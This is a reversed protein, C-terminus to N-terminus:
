ASAAKSSAEPAHKPALPRGGHIRLVAPLLVDPMVPKNLVLDAAAALGSANVQTADHGTLGIVPLTAFDPMARIMRATAAGDLGPMELDLLVLDIDGDRLRELGDVGSEVDVVDHGGAALVARLMVRMHASDDIVLVRLPVFETTAGSAPLSESACEPDVPSTKSEVPQRWNVNLLPTELWFSSGKGVESEVGVEGHMLGALRKVIALGLGTGNYARTYSQDVQSFPKFLRHIADAPIGIGTDAVEIRLTSKETGATRVRITVGGRDTFKVANGALNILIQRLRGPDALIVTPVDPAIDVTMTLRKEWTRIRLIQVVSEILRPLNTEQPELRTHGSELRTLDLLDDVILSLAEGAGKITSICSRQPETLDTDGIVSAMGLIGNLPTRLEHSVIALFESKARSAQEADDRSKEAQARAQTEAYQAETLSAILNANEVVLELTTVNDKHVFRGSNFLWLIYLSGGAAVVVGGPMGATLMMALYPISATAIHVAACPSFPGRALLSGTCVGVLLVGLLLSQASDAPNFWVVAALGWSAGTIGSLATLSWAWRIADRAAVPQAHFRERLDQIAYSGLMHLLLVLAPILHGTRQHDLAWLMLMCFIPPYRGVSTTSFLRATLGAVVQPSLNACTFGAWAVRLRDSLAMVQDGM